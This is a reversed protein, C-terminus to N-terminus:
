IASFPLIGRPMGSVDVASSYTVYNVIFNTVILVNKDHTGYVSFIKTLSFNTFKAFWLSNVRVLIYKAYWQGCGLQKGFKEKGITKAQITWWIKGWGFNEWTHYKSALTKYTCFNVYVTCKLIMFYIHHIKFVLFIMSVQLLM